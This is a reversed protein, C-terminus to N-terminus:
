GKIRINHADSQRIAVVAGHIEYASITHSKRLCTARTGKVLGYNYLRRCLAASLNLRLVEGSEGKELSSLGKSIM